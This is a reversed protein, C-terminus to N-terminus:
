LCVAATDNRFSADLAEVVRVLGMEESVKNSFELPSSGEDIAPIPQPQPGYVHHNALKEGRCRGILLLNYNVQSASPLTESLYRM